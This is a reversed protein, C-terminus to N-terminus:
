MTAGGKILFQYLSKVTFCGNPTLSWRKDDQSNLQDGSIGIVLEHYPSQSILLNLDPSAMCKRITGLPLLASRFAKPWLNVLADGKVWCNIRSLTSAKDRIIQSVFARFTLLYSLIGNYFYLIHRPYKNFLNWTQESRYHNFCVM